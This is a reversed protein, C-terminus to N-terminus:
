AKAKVRKLLIHYAKSFVEYDSTCHSACGDVSCDSTCHEEQLVEFYDSLNQLLEKEINMRDRELEIAMNIKSYDPNRKKSEAILEDRVKAIKNNLKMM